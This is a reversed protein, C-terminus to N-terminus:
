SVREQARGTIADLIIAERASTEIATAPAAALWALLSALALAPWLRRLGSDIMARDTPKLIRTGQTM